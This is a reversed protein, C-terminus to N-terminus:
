SIPCLVFNFLLVLRFSSPPTSHARFGSALSPCIPAILIFLFLFLHLLSFDLLPIDHGLGLGLGLGLHVTHAHLRSSSSPLSLPPPLYIWRYSTGERAVDGGDIVQFFLISLSYRFFAGRRLPFKWRSYDFHVKFRFYTETFRVKLKTENRM